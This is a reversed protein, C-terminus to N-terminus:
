GKLLFMKIDDQVRFAEEPQEMVDLLGEEEEDQSLVAPQLNEIKTPIKIENEM